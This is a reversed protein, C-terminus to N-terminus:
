DAPVELDSQETKPEQALRELPFQCIFESGKGVLSRIRLKGNHREAVHKVISLGLGTGGENRARGQDVRYFRETVRRIQSRPIGAGNDKIMLEARDSKVRWVMDIEVDAPGYRLANFTLNRVATLIERHNGNLSREEAQIRITPSRELTQGLELAESRVQEFLYNMNLDTPDVLQTSELRNLWLLDEVIDQMRNAQNQIQKVAKSVVAPLSEHMEGLSESYGKIVTLPTKLEHSVNSAFDSRTKELQRLRTVDRIIIVKGDEGDPFANYEFTREPDLPSPAVVLQNTTIPGMMPGFAPDRLYHDLPKALDTSRLGLYREAGNNFWRLQNQEGLLIFGRDVSRLATNIQELQERLHEQRKQALRAQQQWIYAVDSEPSNLLPLVSVDQNQIYQHLLVRARASMLWAGLLVASASIWAKGTSAWLAIWIIAMISADRIMARSAKNM